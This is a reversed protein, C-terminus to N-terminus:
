TSARHYFYTTHGRIDRRENQTGTLFHETSKNSASYTGDVPGTPGEEPGARHNMYETELWFIEASEWFFIQWFKGFVPQFHNLFLEGLDLPFRIIPVSRRRVSVILPSPRKWALLEDRWWGRKTMAMLRKTRMNEFLNQFGEIAPIKLGEFCKIAHQVSEQNRGLSFKPASIIKSSGLLRQSEWHRLFIKAM